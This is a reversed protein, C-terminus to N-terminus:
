KKQIILTFSSKQDQWLTHITHTGIEKIPEQLVIMNPPIEINSNTKLADVIDHKHIGSFLHGKENAPVHITLTIKRLKDLESKLKSNEISQSIYISEKKTEIKKLNEPTAIIAKGNKLLFNQAFGQPVEKVDYKSGVRAVDVLLIIKM